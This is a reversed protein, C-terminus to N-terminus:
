DDGCYAGNQLLGSRDTFALPNNLVYSYRNLSQPNNMNKAVPGFLSRPEDLQRPRATNGSNRTSVKTETSLELSTFSNNDQSM